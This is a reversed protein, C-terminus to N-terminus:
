FFFLRATGSHFERAGELFIWTFFGGLAILVLAVRVNSGFSQLELGLSHRKM